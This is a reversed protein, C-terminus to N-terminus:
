TRSFGIVGPSSDHRSRKIGGAKWRKLWGLIAMRPDFEEYIPVIELLISQCTEATILRLTKERCVFLSRSLLFREPVEILSHFCALKPAFDDSGDLFVQVARRTTCFNM